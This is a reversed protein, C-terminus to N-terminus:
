WWVLWWLQRLWVLYVREFNTKRSSTFEHSLTEWLHCLISGANIRIIGNFFQHIGFKRSKNFSYRYLILRKKNWYLSLQVTIEGRTRTEPSLVFSVLKIPCSLTSSCGGDVCSGWWVVSLLCWTSILYWFWVCYVCPLYWILSFLSKTFVTDCLVIRM